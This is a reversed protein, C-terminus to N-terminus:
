AGKCAHGIPAPGLDRLEDLDEADESLASVWLSLEGLAAYAEHEDRHREPENV